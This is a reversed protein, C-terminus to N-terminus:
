QSSLQSCKFCCPFTLSVLLCFSVNRLRVKSLLVPEDFSQEKNESEVVFSSVSGLDKRNNGATSDTPVPLMSYTKRIFILFEDKTCVAPRKGKDRSASTTYKSTSKGGELLEELSPEQTSKTIDHPDPRLGYMGSVV